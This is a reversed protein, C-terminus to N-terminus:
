VYYSASMGLNQLELCRHDVSVSAVMSAQDNFFVSSLHATFIASDITYKVIDPM